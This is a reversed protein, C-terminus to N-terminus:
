ARVEIIPPSSVVRGSIANATQEGKTAGKHRRIPIPIVINDPKIRIKEPIRTREKKPTGPNNIPVASRPMPMEKPLTRIGTM